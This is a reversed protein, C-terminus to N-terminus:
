LNGLLKGMPGPASAMVDSRIQKTMDVMESRGKRGKSVMLSEITHCLQTMMDCQYLEAFIHGRALANIQGTSLDTKMMLNDDQFLTEAAYQLDKNEAQTVTIGGNNSEEERPKNLQDKMSPM